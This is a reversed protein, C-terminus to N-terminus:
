LFSDGIKRAAKQTKRFAVKFIFCILLSHDSENGHPRKGPPGAEALETGGKTPRFPDEARGQDGRLRGM